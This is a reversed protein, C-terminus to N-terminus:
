WHTVSISDCGSQVQVLHSNRFGLVRESFFNFGVGGNSGGEYIEFDAGKNLPRNLCTSMQMNGDTLYRDCVENHFGVLKRRRGTWHVADQEAIVTLM